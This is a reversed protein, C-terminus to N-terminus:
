DVNPSGVLAQPGGMNTQINSVINPTKDIYYSRNKFAKLQNYISDHIIAGNSQMIETFWNIRTHNETEICKKVYVPVSQFNIEPPHVNVRDESQM